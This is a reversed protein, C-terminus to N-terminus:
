VVELKTEQRGGRVAYIAEDANGKEVVHELHAYHQTCVALSNGMEKAVQWLEYGEGILLTAFAHRLDYPRMKLGLHKTATHFGGSDRWTNFRTKTWGFVPGIRGALPAPHVAGSRCGGESSQYAELDDRLPELLRTARDKGTKTSRFIIAEPGVDRWTLRSHAEEPRPGAYALVSVLTAEELRGRELFWGRLQEVREPPFPQILHQREVRPKRIPEVPNSSVYGMNRAYTFVASLVYLIKRQTPAGRGASDLENLFANVEPSTIDCLRYGNFRALIDKELYSEQKRQTTESVTRAHSAWWENVVETFDRESALPDVSGLRKRRKISLDFEVADDKAFGEAKPFARSPQKNGQRWRVTWGTKTTHVSM